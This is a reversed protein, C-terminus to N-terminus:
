EDLLDKGEVSDKTIRILFRLAENVSGSDPFFQAVYPDLQVYNGKRGEGVRRIRLGKLDYESRLDDQEDMGENYLPADCKLM